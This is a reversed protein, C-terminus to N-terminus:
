WPVKKNGTFYTITNAVISITPSIVLLMILIHINFAPLVFWVSFILCAVVFDLQDLLWWPEGREHGARRKFYSKLLDGVPAAFACIFIRPLLKLFTYINADGPNVANADGLMYLALDRILQQPNDQYFKYLFQPSNLFGNALTLIEPWYIFLFIHVVIALPIGFGLPGLFFGRWTKGPGFLRRGDKALKGGDIPAGGGWILMGGNSIYGPMIFLIWYILICLWDHITYVFKFYLLQLCFAIVGGMALGFAIRANKQEELNLPRPGRCAKNKHLDSSPLDPMPLAM